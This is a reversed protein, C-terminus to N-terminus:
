GALAMRRYQIAEAVHVAAVQRAAGLDAISRAMKLVRHYGRASLGLRSIAQQLLSAGADDPACHLAIERTALMTNACGQRAMM